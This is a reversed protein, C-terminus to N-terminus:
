ALLLLTTYKDASGLAPGKLPQIGSTYQINHLAVFNNLCHNTLISIIRKSVNQYAIICYRISWSLHIKKKYMSKLVLQIQINNHYM